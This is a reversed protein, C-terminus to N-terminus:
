GEEVIRLLDKYITDAQRRTQEMSGSCDIQFDARRRKEEVPMQADIRRRAEELSIGAKAMLREVQQEPRCWAVMVKRLTGGLRSEFILAADVIVVAQPNQAHYEQALENSRAIIRPHVIANLAQLQQPDAFVLPGLIKRDIRGRSDLIGAGFHALIEEYAPQGPEILEHGLRDSDIIRAGLLEFYRAVTSKGSAVGGTLGFALGADPTRPGSDPTHL